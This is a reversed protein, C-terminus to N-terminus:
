SLQDNSSDEILVYQLTFIEPTSSRTGPYICTLAVCVEYKDCIVCIYKDCFVRIYKHLFFQWASFNRLALERFSVHSHWMVSTSVNHCEFTKRLPPFLNQSRCLLQKLMLIEEFYFINQSPFMLCSEWFSPSIQSWSM